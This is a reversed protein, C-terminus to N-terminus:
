RSRMDVCAIIATKTHYVYIQWESSGTNSEKVWLVGHYWGEKKEVMYREEFEIAKQLAETRLFGSNADAKIIIKKMVILISRM